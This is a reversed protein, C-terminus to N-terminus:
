PCLIGIQIKLKSNTGNLWSSGDTYIPGNPRPQMACKGFGFSNEVETEKDMM